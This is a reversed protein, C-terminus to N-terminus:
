VIAILANNFTYKTTNMKTFVNIYFFFDKRIKLDTKDHILPLQEM